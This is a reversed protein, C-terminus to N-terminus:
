AYIKIILSSISPPLFGIHCKFGQSPEYTGSHKEHKQMNNHVNLIPLRTLFRFSNWLVFYCTFKGEAEGKEYANCLHAKEYWATTNLRTPALKLKSEKSFTKALHTLLRRHLDRCLHDLM